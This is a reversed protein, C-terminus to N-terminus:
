ESADGLGRAALAEATVHAYSVTSVVVPTVLAVPNLRMGRALAAQQVDGFAGAVFPISRIMVSVALGFRESNFGLRDLPRTAAVLADILVPSPTTILLERSAYLATLLTAVLSVGVATRGFFVHYGGLVALLAVMGWPIGWGTVIRVGTSAVCVLSMLLMGLSVWVNGVIPGPLTLALFAVYKWGVSVRHWVSNGPLYLGLVNRAANM